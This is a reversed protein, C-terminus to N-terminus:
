RIHKYRIPTIILYLLILIELIGRKIILKRLKATESMVLLADYDEFDEVKCKNKEKENLLPLEKLNRITEM